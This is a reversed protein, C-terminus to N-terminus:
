MCDESHRPKFHSQDVSSLIYSNLNLFCKFTNISSLMWCFFGLNKAPRFISMLNNKMIEKWFSKTLKQCLWKAKV